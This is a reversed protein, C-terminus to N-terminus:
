PISRSWSGTKGGGSAAQAPDWVPFNGSLTSGALFINNAGDLVADNLFDDETGGLYSAFLLANGTPTVRAAFLDSGGGNSAQFANVVPFDTSDTDGLLFFHQFSDLRVAKSSESGSGGLYSSFVVEPVSPDLRAFFSDQFGNLEAQLPDVMPFDGSRTDGTILISGDSDIAAGRGRDRGTGGLLTSFLVDGSPFTTTVFIDTDGAVAAQIPDTVPFRFSSTSGLITLAGDAAAILQGMSESGGGGLYTSFTLTGTSDFKAIFADVGGGRVPQTPAVTPFNFSGTEGGLYINGMADIDVSVGRDASVGGLFTSFVVSFDSTDIKTLFADESPAKSREANLSLFDASTTVGTIYLMGSDILISTGSDNSSGGGLFSSYSIIPDITLSRGTDYDGIRFAVKQGEMVRYESEVERRKGGVTQYTVPKLQRIERGAVEILLDGRSDIKVEDGGEITWSSPPPPPVRRLCSISDSSVRDATFCRM